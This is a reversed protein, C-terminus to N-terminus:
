NRCRRYILLSNQTQSRRLGRLCHKSSLCFALYKNSIVYTLVHIPWDRTVCLQAALHSFRDEPIGVLDSVFRATCGCFITLSKFDSKPLVPITGVAYRFCHRQDATCNASKSESICFMPKRMVRSLQLNIYADWSM